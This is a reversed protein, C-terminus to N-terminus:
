FLGPETLSVVQVGMQLTMIKQLTFEMFITIFTNYTQFEDYSFFVESISTCDLHLVFWNDVGQGNVTEDDDHYLTYANSEPALGPNLSWGNWIDGDNTSSGYSYQDWNEVVASNDCGACVSNYDQSYPAVAQSSIVQNILFFPILFTIKKM